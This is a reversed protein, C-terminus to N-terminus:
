RTNAMDGNPTPPDDLADRDISCIVALIKARYAKEDQQNGPDIVLGMPPTDSSALNRSICKWQDAFSDRLGPRSGVFPSISLQM